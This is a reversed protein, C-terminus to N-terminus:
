SQPSPPPSSCDGQNKLIIKKWLKSKKTKGENKSLKPSTPTRPRVHCLPNAQPDSHSMLWM